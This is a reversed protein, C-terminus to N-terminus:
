KKKLCFVAYSIGLHSSNLRTSKRDRELVQKLATQNAALAVRDQLVVMRFTMIGARDETTNLAALRIIAPVWIERIAESQVSMQKVMSLSFLGLLLVVLGILGFGFISRPALKM